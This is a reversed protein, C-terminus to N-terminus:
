RVSGSGRVLIRPSSVSFGFNVLASRLGDFCLVRLLAWVAVFTYGCRRSYYPANGVLYDFIHELGHFTDYALMAM